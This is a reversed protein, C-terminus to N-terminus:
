SCSCVIQLEVEGIGRAGIKSIHPDPKSLIFMLLRTCRFKVPVHYDALTRTVPKAGVRIMYTEEMLAAGLAM